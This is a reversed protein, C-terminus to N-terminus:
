RQIINQTMMIVLTFWLTIITGIISILVELNEKVEHKYKRDCLLNIVQISDKIQSFIAELRPLTSFHLSQISDHSPDIKKKKDECHARFYSFASAGARHVQSFLNKVRSAKTPFDHAFFVCSLCYSADVIPSLLTLSVAFYRIIPYRFSKEYVFVIKIFAVKEDFRLYPTKEIYTGGYDQLYM